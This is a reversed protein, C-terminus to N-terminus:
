ANKNMVRIVRHRTVKEVVNNALFASLGKGVKYERKEMVPVIVSFQDIM